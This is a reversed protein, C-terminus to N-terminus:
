VRGPSALGNRTVLDLVKGGPTLSISAHRHALAVPIVANQYLDFEFYRVVDFARALQTGYNAIESKQESFRKTAAKTAFPYPLAVAFVRGKNSKFIFDQGFYTEYGFNDNNVSSIYRDRYTDDVVRFFNNPLYPELARAHEMVQGDKQLGIIVPAPLGRQALETSIRHYLNVLSFSISAPQGFVALPGDLIFAMQSLTRPQNKALMRIFTAVLLQEVANMFRTIASTCDGYDTVQEHIRLTDTLYVTCGCDPCNQVEQGKTFVFKDKGTGPAPGAACSPCFRMGVTGGDLDLLTGRVTFDDDMSFRTRADSLQDWVAHRFGDKVSKAGDYRVNSGPLAFAFSDANRHLAAVKFPDVFRSGALTLGEFSSLPILVMSAKVYGVQTSPFKGDIPAAYPSADSAVVMIPKWDSTPAPQYTAAISIAETEGPQQMYSCSQLFTAVDPNRVLDSHGGKSATERNYPM